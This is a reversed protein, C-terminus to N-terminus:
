RAVYEQQLVLCISLVHLQPFDDFMLSLPLLIISAFTVIQVPRVKYQVKLMDRELHTSCHEAGMESDADQM